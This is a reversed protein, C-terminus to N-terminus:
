YHGGMRRVFSLACEDEEEEEEKLIETPITKLKQTLELLSVITMKALKERPLNATELANKDEETQPVVKTALQGLQSIIYAKNKM